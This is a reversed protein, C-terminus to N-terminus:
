PDKLRVGLKCGYKEIHKSLYKCFELSLLVLFVIKKPPMWSSYSESIPVLVYGHGEDGLPHYSVAGYYTVHYQALGNHRLLVPKTGLYGM